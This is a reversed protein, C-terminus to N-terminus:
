RFITIAIEGWLEQEVRKIEEAMKQTDYEAGAMILERQIVVKNNMWDLYGFLVANQDMVGYDASVYTRYFDPQTWEDSIIAEMLEDTAEPIVLSNKDAIRHCLYERRFHVSDVGYRDIIKQIKPATLFSDYLTRLVLTGRAQAKEWYDNFPHDYTKPPTSILLLLPSDVTTMTPFLVSELAYEFDAAAPFGAEDVVVIDFTQGRISEIHGGDMGAVKVMSGNKFIWVGRQTDYKPRLSSPCDDLIINFNKEVISRTQSKQPTIYAVRLGPNNLCEEIIIAAISFSKGFQRSIVWTLTDETGRNKFSEYLCQQEPKLKWAVMGREWLVKAAKAKAEADKKRFGKNKNPSGKPRGPKRKNEALTKVPNAEFDGALEEVNPSVTPITENIAKNDTKEVLKQLRELEDKPHEKGVM